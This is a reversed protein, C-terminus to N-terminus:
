LEEAQRVGTFRSDGKTLLTAGADANVFTAEVAAEQPSFEQLVAVLGDHIICLREALPKTNHPLITGAAVFSLRSGLSDVM